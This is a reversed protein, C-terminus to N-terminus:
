PAEISFRTYKEKRHYESVMIHGEKAPYVNIKINGDKHPITRMTKKTNVNYIYINEEDDIIVYNTKTDPNVVKYFDKKDITYLIGTPGFSKTEDCPINNDLAIKGSTEQRVFVGDALKFKSSGVLTLATGTFITNGNYDRFASAYRVFFSQDTFLGEESLGPFKGDSWYSCIAKMGAGEEGLDITFLGLYPGNAYDLATVFRGAMRPNIICGAIVSHGTGPDNDFTLVKLWNDLSDRLDFNNELYLDKSSYVNIKYEGEPVRADKKVLLYIDMASTNLYYHDAFDTISQETTLNGKSNFVVLDKKVDDGYFLCFGSGPINRIQTGYKLYGSLKVTSYSNKTPIAATALNVEQYYTNIVKGSLNIFQVLIHSSMTPDIAKKYEKQTKVLQGGALPSQIYGLCLVNQEFSVTELQLNEQRFNVTGIDNLNEDMITIRYNFSDADAKELRTFALYGVLTNDQTIAKFQTSMDEGIEKFIKTQAQLSHSFLVIILPFALKKM